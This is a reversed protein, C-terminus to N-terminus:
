LVKEVYHSQSLTIGESNRIIKIGLIVDAEGLDKMDFNSSLLDKTSKVVDMDTGLILMDDVYLCIIVGSDSSFKKYVCRDSENVVFENSILTNYFKEHWHKPAQKLGYLSKRLKCIKSEQGQVIFGELQDMYSEEDLDGNLFATKVDMQHVILKHISAMTILIRITTLRTVLSYTDFYDIGEKQTYGKAVLRVKFKDISGNAKLKKKFVWKCGIIKCGRPLEVLDWKHNSMILELESHIADKWFTADVSKIAEQYTKPDDEILFATIFEPGFNTGNKPRKSHRLEQTSQNENLNSSSRVQPIVSSSENTLRMRKMPFIHKFFDADRTEVITNTELVLCRYAPSNQAYGIFVNNKTKPGIKEKHPEPIGVKAM